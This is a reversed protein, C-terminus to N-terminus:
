RLYLNCATQSNGGKVFVVLVGSTPQLPGPGDLDCSGVVAHQGQHLNLFTYPPSAPAGLSVSSRVGANSFFVTVSLTMAPYSSVTPNQVYQAGDWVFVNVLLRGSINVPNPPYIIDDSTGFTRDEGASRIQGTGPDGYRYPTGWEDEMFATSDFGTNLYPGFWGYKVGYTDTQGSPQVVSGYIRQVLARLDNNIPLVGMDGVYGGESMSPDGLIATQLSEMEKMTSSRKEQNILKFAYPVAISAIISIIAVIIIVEILTFGARSRSRM